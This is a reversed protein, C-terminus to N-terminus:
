IKMMERTKWPFRWSSSFSRQALLKTILGWIEFHCWQSDKDGTVPRWQELQHPQKHGWRRPPQVALLRCFGPLASQRLVAVREDVQRRVNGAAFVQGAEELDSWLVLVWRSWVRSHMACRHEWQPQSILYYFQTPIYIVAFNAHLVFSFNHNRRCVSFFHSTQPTWPALWLRRMRYSGRWWIWWM